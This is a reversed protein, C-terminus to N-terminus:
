PNHCDNHYGTTTLNDMPQTKTENAVMGYRRLNYQYGNSSNGLYTLFFHKVQSDTDKNYSLPIAKNIIKSAPLGLQKRSFLVDNQFFHGVDWIVNKTNLEGATMKRHVLALSVTTSMVEILFFLCGTYMQLIDTLMLTSSYLKCVFSQM